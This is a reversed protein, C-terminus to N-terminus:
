WSDKLARMDQIEWETEKVKKELNRQHNEAQSFEQSKKQQAVKSLELEKGLLKAKLEYELVKANLEDSKIRFEHERKRMADEFDATIERKQSDMEEEVQTLQRQLKRKFSQFEKREEQM